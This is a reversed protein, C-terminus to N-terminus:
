CRSESLLDGSQLGTAAFETSKTDHAQSYVERESHCWGGLSVGSDELDESSAVSM